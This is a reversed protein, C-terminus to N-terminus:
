NSAREAFEYPGKDVVPQGVFNNAPPPSSTEWELSIANWPNQEAKEGRLLSLIFSLVAVLVGVVLIISGITSVTHMGKLFNVYEPAWGGLQDYSAYRRPMGHLGLIFQTFFALNVGLFVLVAGIKGLGESYTKGTMKPWWHYLGALFATFVGGVMLYHFNAVAYYTDQLHVNGSLSGLYVSTLAGITFMFLFLFTYIMPTNFAISGKYLTAIWSMIKVLTPIAVALALFSLITMTSGAQGATFLQQGWTLFGIFAIAFTAAVMGRYGFIHKRSHVTICESIIGFAPLVMVYLAPHAYFWFSSQFLMADGGLAPNFLGLGFASDFLVFLMTLGVIPTALAYIISTAYLAWVFLPLKGWTLGPARLKHISVIFNIGTLLASYGLIFAGASALIASIGASGSGYATMFAWGPNAVGIILAVLMLIAGLLFLQFATRNLRPFALDKAGLMLPLLFNGLTAPISPVLFLFVMVAGHLTFLQGYVEASLLMGEPKMMQLRLALAALGGILFFATITALYLFGIRKHDSSFLWSMLGKNANLYNTNAAHGTAQAQTAETSAM